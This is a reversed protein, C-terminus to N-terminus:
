KSREGETSGSAPDTMRSGPGTGRLLVMDYFERALGRIEGKRPVIVDRLRQGTVKSYQVFTALFIFSYTVSSAIAAGHIGLVHILGFYLPLSIALGIWSIFTTVRPRQLQGIFFLGLFFHIGYFLVGPLLIIMPLYAPLYPDGFVWRIVLRGTLILAISLVLLVFTLGRALKSVLATSEALSGSTIRSFSVNYVPSVTMWIKEAISTALGYYGLPKDGLFYNVIFYDMRHFLVHAINGLHAMFGLNVSEKFLAPDVRFRNSGRLKSMVSIGYVALLANYALLVYLLGELGMGFVFLAATSAALSLFSTAVSYRNLFPIEGLGVLLAGWNSSYIMLPVPLLALLILDDEVGKFLVQSLVGKGLHFAALVIGGVIASFLVSHTFLAASRSKDKAVLTSSSVNFGLNAVGSIVATATVILYYKGLSSPGLARAILVSQLLGFLFVAVNATLTSLTTKLM